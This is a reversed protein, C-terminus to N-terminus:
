RFFSLCVYQVDRVGGTSSEVTHVRFQTTSLTDPVSNSTKLVPYGTYQGLSINSGVAWSYNIDPFANSFNITYDGAANDTVSSVNGSGRISVTGIGYFQIWARCGYATAVSGYGSNFKLNASADIFMCETGNQQWHHETGGYTRYYLGAAGAQTINAYYTGDYAVRLTRGGEGSSSRIELGASPSSTGIGVNGTFSPSALPAKLALSNTITTSFNADDNLAAALENLTDLAGPASDVLNSVATTVYSETAYGTLDSSQLPTYGLKDTIATTHLASATVSNTPYTLTKSSLDLTTHLKAATIEGDPINNVDILDIGLYNM